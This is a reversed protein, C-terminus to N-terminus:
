KIHDIAHENKEFKIAAFIIFINFHFFLFSQFKV